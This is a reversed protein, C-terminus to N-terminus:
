IGRDDNAKYDAANAEIFELLEPHPSFWEGGLCHTSFRHHLEKELNGDGYMVAKIRLIEPHRAIQLAKRRQEAQMLSGSYGIKIAGSLNGQIFYVVSRKESTQVFGWLHLQENVLVVLQSPILTRDAFESLQTTVRDYYQDLHTQWRSESDRCKIHVIEFGGCDRWSVIGDRLDSIECECSECWARKKLREPYKDAYELWAKATSSILSDCAFTEELFNHIDQYHDVEKPFGDDAMIEKAVDGVPDDRDCSAVLWQYFTSGCALRRIRANRDEVEKLVMQAAIKHYQDDNPMVIILEGKIERQAFETRPGSNIDSWDVARELKQGRYGHSRAIRQKEAARVQKALKQGLFTRDPLHNGEAVRHTDLMWQYLSSFVSVDEPLGDFWNDPLSFSQANPVAALIQEPNIQRM